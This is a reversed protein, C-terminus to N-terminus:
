EPDLVMAARQITVNPTGFSVAHCLFSVAEKTLDKERQEKQADLVEKLNGQASWLGPLYWIEWYCADPGRRSRLCQFGYSELREANARYSEPSYGYGCLNNFQSRRHLPIRM